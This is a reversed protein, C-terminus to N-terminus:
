IALVLLLEESNEQTIVIIESKITYNLNMRIMKMLVLNKNVYTVFKKAKWLVKKKILKPIMEKGEFNIAKMAHERLDKYFSEMWDEGKYCDLKNKTEDFSCNTFM